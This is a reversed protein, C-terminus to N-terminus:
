WRGGTFHPRWFYVAAWVGHNSASGWGRALGVLWEGMAECVIDAGTYAMCALTASYAAGSAIDAYSM